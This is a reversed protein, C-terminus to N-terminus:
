KPQSKINQHMKLINVWFSNLGFGQLDVAVSVSM